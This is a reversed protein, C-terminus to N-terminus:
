TKIIIKASEGPSAYYKEAPIKSILKDDFPLADCVSKILNDLDPKKDHAIRYNLKKSLRQPRKLVFIVNLSNCVPLKNLKIRLHTLFAKYKKPYYTGFKTVRPRPCAIPDIDIIM